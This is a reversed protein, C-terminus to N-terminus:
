NEILNRGQGQGPREFHDWGQVETGDAFAAGPGGEGPAVVQGIGHWGDPLGGGAPFTALFAHDEGGGLVWQRPDRGLEAALPAWDAIARALAPASPDIVLRLGSARGLRAADKALGDSIDMMASAGGLAARKGLDLPPDPRRYASMAVRALAELGPEALRGGASRRGSELWALGAASAGL